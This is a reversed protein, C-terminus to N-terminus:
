EALLRRRRCLLLLLLLLLFLLSLPLKHLHAGGRLRLLFLETVQLM